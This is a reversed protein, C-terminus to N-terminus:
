CILPNIIQYDVVKVQIDNWFRVKDHEFVVGNLYFVHCFHPKESRYSTCNHDLNSKTQICVKRVVFYRLLHAKWTLYPALGRKSPKKPFFIYPLLGLANKEWCAQLYLNLRVNPLTAFNNKQTATSHVM